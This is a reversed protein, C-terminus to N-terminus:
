TSSRRSSCSRCCRISAAASRVDQRTEHTRGGFEECGRRHRDRTENPRVERRGTAEHYVTPRFRRSAAAAAGRADPKASRRSAAHHRHKALACRRLRSGCRDSQPVRCDGGHAQRGQGSIRRRRLAGEGHVLGRKRSRPPVAARAISGIAFALIVLSARPQAMPQRRLSTKRLQRPVWKTSRPFYCQGVPADYARAYRIGARLTGTGQLTLAAISVPRCRGADREILDVKQEAWTEM